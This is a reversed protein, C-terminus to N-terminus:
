FPCSSLLRVDEFRGTGFNFFKILEDNVNVLLMVNEDEFYKSLDYDCAKIEICNTM